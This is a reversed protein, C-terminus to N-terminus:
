QRKTKSGIVAAIAKRIAEGSPYEENVGLDPYRLELRKRIFPYQSKRSRKMDLSGDEVMEQVVAEVKDAIPPRGLKPPAKPNDYRVDRNRIADIEDDYLFALDVFRMSQYALVGKEWDIRGNIALKTLDHPQDTVRRPSQFGFVSM